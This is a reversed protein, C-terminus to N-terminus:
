ILFRLRSSLHRFSIKSLFFSTSFGSFSSFAFALASFTVPSGSTSSISSAFALRFAALLLFLRRQLQLLLPVLRFLELLLFRALGSFAGACLFSCCLFGSGFFWSRFFLCRCLFLFRYLFFSRYSFLLCSSFFCCLWLLLSFLLALLLVLLLPLQWFFAALGRALRLAESSVSPPCYNQTFFSFCCPQFTLWSWSEPRNM